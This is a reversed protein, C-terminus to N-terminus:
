GLSLLAMAKVQLLICGSLRKLLIKKYGKEKEIFIALYYQAYVHGQKAALEFWKFAEKTDQSVGKINTFMLALNYQANANGQKAALQYLYIAEHHNQTVGESKDYM